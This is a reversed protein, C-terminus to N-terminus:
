YDDGYGGGYAPPFEDIEERYPNDPEIYEPAEVGEPLFEACSGEGVAMPLEEQMQYLKFKRHKPMQEKEAIFNTAGMWYHAVSLACDYCDVKYPDRTAVGGDSPKGGLSLTGMGCGMESAKFRFHTKVRGKSATTM